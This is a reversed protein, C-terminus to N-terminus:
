LIIIIQQTILGLYQVGSKEASPDPIKEAANWNGPDKEDIVGESSIATRSSIRGM